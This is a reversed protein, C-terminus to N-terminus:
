RLKLKEEATVQMNHTKLTEMEISIEWQTMSKTICNHTM